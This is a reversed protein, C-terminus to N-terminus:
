KAIQLSEARALKTASSEQPAAAEAAAPQSSPSGSKRWVNYAEDGAYGALLSACLITVLRVNSLRPASMTSLLTYALAGRSHRRV